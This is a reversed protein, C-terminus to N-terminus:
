SLEKKVMEPSEDNTSDSMIESKDVPSQSGGNTNAAGNAAKTGCGKVLIHRQTPTLRHDLIFM